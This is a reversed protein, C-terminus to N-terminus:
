VCISNEIEDNLSCRFVTYEISERRLPILNDVSTYYYSYSDYYVVASNLHEFPHTTFRLTYLPSPGKEIKFRIFRWEDVM